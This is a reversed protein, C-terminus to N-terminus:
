AINRYRKERYAYKEDAVTIEKPFDREPARVLSIKSIFPFVNEYLVIHRACECLPETGKIFYGFDM